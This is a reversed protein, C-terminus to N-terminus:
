LRLAHAGSAGHDPAGPRVGASGRQEGRAPAPHRHRAGCPVPHAARVPGAAAVFQKDRLDADAFHTMLGEVAVGPLGAIEIIFTLAEEPALGIRGMGTDVKVHVAARTGALVAAESLARALSRTYVAPTLGARVVVEAQDPFVPGMVLVPTAIGADRLERGEEVLAVGLMDAGLGALRRSVPVSGHGYANAKVVALVKRGGARRAAEAYNGALANLDILALTPRDAPSLQTGTPILSCVYEVDTYPARM